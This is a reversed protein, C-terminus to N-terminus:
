SVMDVRETEFELHIPGTYGTNLELMEPAAMRVREILADFSNSSLVIGLEGDTETYWCRSEASWIMKVKFHM